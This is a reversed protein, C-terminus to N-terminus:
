ATMIKFDSFRVLNEGNKYQRQTKKKPIVLKDIMVDESSLDTGTM